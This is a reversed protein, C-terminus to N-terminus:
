KSGIGRPALLQSFWRDYDHLLHTVGPGRNFAYSHDGPLIVWQHPLARTSLERHFHELVLRFYDQDSTVLSYRLAPNASRARELQEALVYLEREDIAAQVAGLAGLQTALHPACVLAVRGGLSIGDLAWSEPDTKVAHEQQVKAIAERLVRAYAPANVFAEPGRFRDPLFPMVVVMGHFPDRELSGAVAERFADTLGTPQREIASPEVLWAWAAELGYDDLFARAGRRPSKLAEGRGHLLILAPFRTGPLHEPIRVVVPISGLSPSEFTYTVVKASLAARAPSAEVGRADDHPAASHSVGQNTQGGPASGPSPATQPAESRASQCGSGGQLCAVLFAVAGVSGPRSQLGQGGGGRARHRNAGRRHWM